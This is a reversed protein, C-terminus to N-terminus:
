RTAGDGRDAVDVLPAGPLDVGVAEQDRGPEDVDVGVEVALDGPVRDDRRRRDVADRRDRHAVAADAEGRGARSRWSQSM